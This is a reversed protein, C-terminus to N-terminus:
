AFCKPRQVEQSPMAGVDKEDFPTNRRNPSFASHPYRRQLTTANFRGDVKATDIIPGTSFTQSM